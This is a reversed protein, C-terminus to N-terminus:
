KHSQARGTGGYETPWGPAIWGKAHLKKQWGVIDGKYDATPDAGLRTSASGDYEAAFFERVESRFAVDEASFKIDLKKAGIIYIRWM